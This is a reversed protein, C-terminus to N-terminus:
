DIKKLPVDACRNVSTNNMDRDWEKEEYDSFYVMIVLVHGTIYPKRECMVLRVVWRHRLM